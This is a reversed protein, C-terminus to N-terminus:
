IIIIIITIIIIIGICKQLVLKYSFISIVHFEVVRSIYIIVFVVVVFFTKFFLVRLLSETTKDPLVM